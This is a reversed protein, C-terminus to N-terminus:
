HITIIGLKKLMASAERGDAGPLIASNKWSLSVKIPKATEQPPLEFLMEFAGPEVEATRFEVGNLSVTVTNGKDLGPLGPIIGEIRLANRVGPKSEFVAWSDKALISDEAIGSYELSPNGVLGQPTDLLLLQPPRLARRQETSLVSIDRIWGSLKRKDNDAVKFVPDVWDFAIMARGDVMLPKLPGVIVNASGNGVFGVPTEEAGIIVANRSLQNKGKPISSRTFSIRVWIEETPNIVEFLLHREMGTMGRKEGATASPDQEAPLGNFHEVMAEGMPNESDPLASPCLALRNVVKDRRDMSFWDKSSVPRYMRNLPSLLPHPEVVYKVKSAKPNRPFEWYVYRNQFSKEVPQIYPLFETAANRFREKGWYMGSFSVPLTETSLHPVHLMVLKEMGPGMNILDCAGKDKPKRPFGLETVYPGECPGGPQGIAFKYYVWTTPLTVALWGALLVPKMISPWPWCWIVAAGVALVPQAFMALKFLGFEGHSTYLRLAVLVMVVAIPVIIRHKRIPAALLLLAVALAGWPMWWMPKGFFPVWGLLRPWGSAGTFYPFVDAAGQHTAQMLLFKFIMALNINLLLLTICAAIGLATMSARREAPRKAWRWLLVLGAALLGFPASEPYFWLLGGVAAACPLLRLLSEKWPRDRTPKVLLAYALLMLALGAVQALLQSYVGLVFLPTLFLFVMAPIALHQSRSRISVVGALAWAQLLAFMLIVPMYAERPSIRSVDSFAALVFDTVPRAGFGVHMVWYVHSPDGSLLQEQSPLDFFGHNLLRTAGVCYNAYDNNLYSVWDTGYRFSPYGAVGLFLVALIVPITLKKWPVRCKKWILVGISALSLVVVTEMGFSKIPTGIQNQWGIIFGFVALGMAPSLYWLAMGKMRVKTVAFFARGLVLLFLFYLLPLIGLYYHLKMM